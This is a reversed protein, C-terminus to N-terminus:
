VKQSIRFNKFFPIMFYGILGLTIAVGIILKWMDNFNDSMVFGLLSTILSIFFIKFLKSFPLTSSFPIKLVKSTQHLYYFAQVWTSIVFSLIVGQLKFIPFLIAVLIIAITFDILAGRVIINSKHHVQLIATYNTIRVPIIFIAIFFVPLSEIYKETFLLLFFPKYYFFLFCFSAFVIPALFLSSQHFIEKVKENLNHSNRSMQVLMINGVASLMLAYVPIEYAGNFYIAFQTISLFFLIVWKDLWKFLVNIVDFMGLYFWQRGIIKEPVPNSDENYNINLLFTKVLFVVSLAWLLNSLSYPYYIFLLHVALYLISFIINVRLVKATKEFKTALTETIISINQTFTFIILAFSEENTFHNEFFYLYLLPLINFALALLLFKSKNKKIWNSINIFGASLILSPLGFLAITSIINTYLWILQYQGYQDILLFRSYIIIVAVQTILKFLNSGMLLVSHFAFSQPLDITTKQLKEASM